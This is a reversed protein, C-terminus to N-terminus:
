NKEGDDTSESAEEAEESKNKDKKSEKVPRTDDKIPAPAILSSKEGEQAKNESELREAEKKRELAAPATDAFDEDDIHHLSRVVRGSKQVSVKEPKAGVEKEAAKFDEETPYIKTLDWKYKSDIENRNKM